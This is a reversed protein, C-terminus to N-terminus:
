HLLLRTGSSTTSRGAGAFAPRDRWRPLRRRDRRGLSKKLLLRMDSEISPGTWCRGVGGGAGDPMFRGNGFMGLPGLLVGPVAGFPDGAARGPIRGGGESHNGFFGHVGSVSQLIALAVHVIEYLFAVDIRGLKPRRGMGDPGRRPVADIGAGLQEIAVVGGGAGVLVDITPEARGAALEGLTPRPGSSPLIAHPANM